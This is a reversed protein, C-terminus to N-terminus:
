HNYKMYTETQNVAKKKLAKINIIAESQDIM